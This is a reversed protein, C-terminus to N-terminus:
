HCYPSNLSDAFGKRDLYNPTRTNVYTQKRRNQSRPSRPTHYGTNVARATPRPTRVFEVYSFYDRPDNLRFDKKCRLDQSFRKDLLQLCSNARHNKMDENDYVRCKELLCLKQGTTLDPHRYIGSNRLISSAPENLQYHQLGVRTRPSFGGLQKFYEQLLKDRSGDIELENKHTGSPFESQRRASSSRVPKKSTRHNADCQHPQWTM